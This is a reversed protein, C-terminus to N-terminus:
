IMESKELWSRVLTIKDVQFHIIRQGKSEFFVQVSIKLMQRLAIRQNEDRM